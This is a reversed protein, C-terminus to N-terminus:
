FTVRLGLSGSHREQQDDNFRGSYAAFATINEGVQWNLGLEASMWDKSPTFGPMTFRGPMSNSGANVFVQNDESEENYAVRVFPRFDGANGMLQYGLRTVMSDRDFGAYNMSTAYGSDESFGDVEQQLWTAAAFPGHQMSGTNWLWGIGLEAGLVSANTGGTEERVYPGLVIERSVDISTSGGSVAGHVYGGGGFRLTGHLSAIVSRGDLNGIGTDTDHNGLTIALGWYANESYRHNAGLSLSLVDADAGPVAASADFDQQGYQVTAYGRVSGVERDLQFDSLMEDNIARVHNENIQVGAEGAMSFQVPAAITTIVVNALMAHAAGSPHVGDAFLYTENTGPQYTAPLGSGAPGCAVSNAPTCAVGTVNTFGFRTPDAIIESILGFTNVPIIGDGLQELGANLASNYVVTIQSVSGANPTSGFQPTAGLNPLNYVIIYNAGAGQLRAIQQVYATAAAVTNAQANLPDNTLTAFIDNAGGWISYLANPDATGGTLALYQSVQDSIRPVPNLCDGVPNVCAGGWAFNPGGSLSNLGSQGFYAAIIEAAVPDPNTTFSNGAPLGSFQAINGSDSLSDGFVYFGTFEQAQVTGACALALALAGALQHTRPM